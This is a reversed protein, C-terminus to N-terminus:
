RNRLNLASHGACHLLSGQGSSHHHIGRQQRVHLATRSLWNYDTRDCDVGEKALANADLVQMARGTIRIIGKMQLWGLQRSVVERVTGIHSAIESNNPLQAVWGDQLPRGSATRLLYAALRARVPSFSLEEITGLATRLRAAVISLVQRACDPERRCLTGLTKASIVWLTSKVLAAASFPHSDGDIIPLESLTQGPGHTALVQERGDKSVKYLKVLGAEVVYLGECTHGECFIVEGPELQQRVVRQTLVDLSELSLHAFLPIKALGNM